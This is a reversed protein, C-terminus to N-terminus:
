ESLLNQYVELYEQTMRSVNFRREFEARCIRRDIEPIKRLSEVASDIDACVFGTLGHQIVEPIAGNGFAVVPTGCALAEILVLGFPEPFRVPHVLAYANGVLENKQEDTAEGLYEADPYSSLLPEIVEEYYRREVEGIKAVMKLPMGFRRAIAIALDPGKDPSMRGIFLLYEGRKERFSYLGTPMGNYVTKLWTLSPVPRRQSNSCSVFRAEPFRALFEAMYPVDLQRHTTTLSRTTTPLWRLFPLHQYEGHFHMVDFRWSPDTLVDMMLMYPILKDAFPRDAFGEDHRLAKRCGAYLHAGTQSDGSAFLTVDHGQRVLEETM